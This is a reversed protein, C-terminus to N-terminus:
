LIDDYFILDEKKCNFLACITKIDGELDHKSSYFVKSFCDDIHLYKLIAETRVKEARTWLICMSSDLEKLKSILDENLEIKSINNVFYEQKTKILQQKEDGTLEYVTNVINRTIRKVDVIREKGIKTLAFNYSENNLKDTFVLTNDLDFVSIKKDMMM